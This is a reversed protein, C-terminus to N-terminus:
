AASNARVAAPRDSKAGASKMRKPAPMPPYWGEWFHKLEQAYDRPKCHYIATAVAIAKQRLGTQMTEVMERLAVSEAPILARLVDLNHDDGLDEQLDRLIKEPSQGPTPWLGELIRVQYWRDKVRKRLDHFNEATPKECALKLAKRGRRFSKRLGPEIVEFGDNLKWTATSRKLHRLGVIGQELVIRLDSRQCTKEAHRRLSKRLSGLQELVEENGCHNGLLDVTELLAAADRYESLTRGLAGMAAVDTNAAPGLVPTLMRLLGRLKKISKRAEHIAHDRKSVDKTSLQAIASDIEDRAIRKLGRSLAEDQLLRYGM